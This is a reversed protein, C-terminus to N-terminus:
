NKSTVKFDFNRRNNQNKRFDFEDNTRKARENPPPPELFGRSVLNQEKNNFAKRTKKIKLDIRFFFIIFLNGYFFLNSSWNQTLKMSIKRMM